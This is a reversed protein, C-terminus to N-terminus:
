LSAVPAIRSRLGRISRPPARPAHAQLCRSLATLRSSTGLPLSRADAISITKSSPPASQVADQSVSLLLTVLVGIHLMAVSRGITSNRVRSMANNEKQRRVSCIRTATLSDCRSNRAGILQSGDGGARPLRTAPRRGHRGPLRDTALISLATVIQFISRCRKRFSKM